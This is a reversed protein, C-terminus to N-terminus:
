RGDAGGTTRVEVGHAQLEDYVADAIRQRESLAVFRDVAALGKSLGNFILAHVTPGLDGPQDSV